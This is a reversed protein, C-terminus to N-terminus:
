IELVRQAVKGHKFFETVQNQSLDFHVRKGGCLAKPEAEGGNSDLTEKKEAAKIKKKSKKKKSSEIKMVLDGDENEVTESPHQQKPEKEVEPVKDFKNEPNQKEAIESKEVLKIEGDKVVKVMEKDGDKETAPEVPKSNLVDNGKEEKEAVGLLKRKEARTLHKSPTSKGLSDEFEKEEDNLAELILQHERALQDSM